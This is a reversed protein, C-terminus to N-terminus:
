MLRAQVARGARLLQEADRVKAQYDELAAPPYLGSKRADRLATNAAEVAVGLVGLLGEHYKAPCPAVGRLWDSVQYPRVSMNSEAQLAFAISSQKIHLADLAELIEPPQCNKGYLRATKKIAATVDRQFDSTKAAM